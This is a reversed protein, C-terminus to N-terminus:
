TQCFTQRNLLVPSRNNSGKPFEAVHSPPETSGAAAPQPETFGAAAPQPEASGAAAPQPEASGAAAPQPEASGAAAPQPEASGAAAPQPETPKAARQSDLPKAAHQSDLPKAAHQSDLPKAAHQSDLPKAARIAVLLPDLPGGASLSAPVGLLGEALFETQLVSHVFDLDQPNDMLHLVFKCCRSKMLNGKLTELGAQTCAPAPSRVSSQLGASPAPYGGMFRLSSLWLSAMTSPGEMSLNSAGVWVKETTVARRRHRRGPCSSFGAPFGATAPPLPSPKTRAVSPTPPGAPAAASTSPEAPVAASTSPEPLAATPLNPEAPAAAAPTSRKRRPRRRRSSSYAPSTHNRDPMIDLAAWDSVCFCEEMEELLLPSPLIEVGEGYLAWLTEEQQKIWKKLEKARDAQDKQSTGVTVIHNQIPGFHLCSSPLIM